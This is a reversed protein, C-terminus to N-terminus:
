FLISDNLQLKQKGMMNIWERERTGQYLEQYENKENKKLQLETQMVCSISLDLQIASKPDNLYCIFAFQLQLCSTQITKEKRSKGLYEARERERIQRTNNENRM